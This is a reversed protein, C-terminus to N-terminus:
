GGAVKYVDKNQARYTKGGQILDFAEELEAYLAAQGNSDDLSGVWEYEFVRVPVGRELFWGRVLKRFDELDAPLAAEAVKEKIKATAVEEGLVDVLVPLSAEVAEVREIMKAIFLKQFLRLTVAKTLNTLQEAWLPEKAKANYYTRVEDWFVFWYDRWRGSTWSDWDARDEITPAVVKTYFDDDTRWGRAGRGGGEILQRVALDPIFGSASVDGELRVKIMGFFPSAPNRGAIVAAIREEVRAGSRDLQVRIATQEDLTLSSGFIDTLLSQEVKQAKENIVVFQYIQEMWTSNPIAVVPLWIAMDAHSAGYLRHQGDVVLAPRALAELSEVLEVVASEELAFRAVADPCDRAFMAIQGLSEAVYNHGFKDEDYDSSGDFISEVLALDEAALRGKMRTLVVTAVTALKQVASDSPSFPPDYALVLRGHEDYEPPGLMAITLSTPGLLYRRAEGDRPTGAQNWFATVEQKRSDTLWRQYLMRVRWGKRPIGAWAAIDTAPAAFMLLLDDDKDGAFQNFALTPFSTM